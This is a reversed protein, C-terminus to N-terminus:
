GGLTGRLSAANRLSNIQQGQEEVRKELEVVKWASRILGEAEKDWKPAREDQQPRCVGLWAEWGWPLLALAALSVGPWPSGLYQTAGLAIAGLCLLATSLQQATM